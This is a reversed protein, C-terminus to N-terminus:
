EDDYWRELKKQLLQNAKRIRRKATAASVGSINATEQVTFGEYYRLLIVMRLKAPLSAIAGSVEGDPFRMEEAREPLDEPTIRRDMHRFWGTRQYDRCTNVAIRILWTKESSDNRFTDLAKWAKVFTDQAADEAQFSDKLQLTCFRKIEDGYWDMLRELEESRGTDTM